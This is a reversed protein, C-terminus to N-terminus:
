RQFVEVLFSGFLSVWTTLLDSKFLKQPFLVPPFFPVRTDNHSVEVRRPAPQSFVVLEPKDKDEETRILRGEGWTKALGPATWFTECHSKKPPPPRRRTQRKQPSPPPRLLPPLPSFILYSETSRSLVMWCIQAQLAPSFFPAQKPMGHSAPPTRSFWRRM